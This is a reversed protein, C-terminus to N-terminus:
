YCCLVHTLVKKSICRIFTLSVAQLILIIKDMVLLTSVSTQHAQEFCVFVLKDYINTIYLALGFNM